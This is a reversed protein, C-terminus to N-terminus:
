HRKFSFLVRTQTGSKSLFSTEENTWEYCLLNLVSGMPIQLCGMHSLSSSSAWYYFMCISCLARLIIILSQKFAANRKPGRRKFQSHCDDKKLYRCMTFFNVLPQITQIFFSSNKMEEKQEALRSIYKKWWWWSVNSGLTM